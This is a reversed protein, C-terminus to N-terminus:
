SFAAALVGVAGGVTQTTSVAIGGMAASQAMALLSGSGVAGGYFTAQIWAAVSGAVPGAASFGLLGLGGVAAAPALAAGGGVILATRLLSMTNTPSQVPTYSYLHTSSLTQNPNRYALLGAGAGLAAVGAAIEAASGVAIGGMAASQCLAFISGSTVAGGYVASQIGAAISGIFDFTLRLDYRGLEANPPLNEGAVPGASGFGILNLAGVALAPGVVVAGITLLAGGAITAIWQNRNREEAEARAKAEDDRLKIKGLLTVMEARFCSDADKLSQDAEIGDKLQKAETLVAIFRERLADVQLSDRNNATLYSKLQSLLTSLQNYGSDDKAKAHVLRRYKTLGPYEPPSSTSSM